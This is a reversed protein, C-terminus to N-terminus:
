KHNKIDIIRQKIEATKKLDKNKKAIKYGINLYNLAKDKQKLELSLDSLLIHNDILFHSNSGFFNKQIEISKLAYSLSEELGHQKLKLRSLNHYTTAIFPHSVKIYNDDIFIAKDCYLEANNYDQKNWYLASIHNYSAIINPHTLGLTQKHIEVANLYFDLAKNIENKRGHLAGINNYLISILPHKKGLIAEAIKQSKLYYDLSNDYDKLEKYILGINNYSEATDLHNTGLVKEKIELSKFHFDLAKKFNALERYASGINNYTYSVEIHKGTLKNKQISLADNFYKLSLNAKGLFKNSLGLHNYSRAFELDGPEILKKKITLAKKHFKVSEAYNGKSRHSQGILDLILAIDVNSKSYLTTHIQHCKNYFKLSKDYKGKKWYIEGIHQYIDAIGKSNNENIKLSLSLAKTFHGLSLDLKYNDKEFLGSKYYYESAYRLKEAKEFHYAILYYYNKDQNHLKIISKASLQHITKLRERLQMDYVTDRLLTHRFFYKSKSLSFWIREEEGRLLLFSYDKEPMNKLKFDKIVEFLITNEFERGLVSAIQVTDKLEAPLRDIQASLLTNIDKPIFATKKKLNLQNKKLELFESNQLYSCYQQIYYPNNETRTSLFSFLEKGPKHGMNNEILKLSLSDPFENLTIESIKVNKDSPIKPKYNKKLVRSTVFIVIPYNEIGRTLSRFVEHSEMDLWHIDEFILVLPKLVTQSKFFEKIALYVAKQKNKLSLKEFISNEWRLGVLSGIISKIRTLEEVADKKINLSAPANNISSVLNEYVRQFNNLKSKFTQNGSLNFYKFFFATFPNLSSKVVNDTQLTHIVANQQISKSFEFLLHSKGIGAEGYIYVVGAFKGNFIPKTIKHLKALEQKRGLFKNEFINESFEKRNLLEYIELSESFGKFKFKKLPRSNFNNRIKESIETTIFIQNWKAKEMMRCSLNVVSGLVGYVARLKSGKIGCFVSGYTIGAKFDCKIEEKLAIIFNLARNLNNEYATPIGFIVLCTNGKDGFDFNEIYGGYFNSNDQIYRIANNYIDSTKRFSIFVSVIDKFEGKLTYNIIKEPLFANINDFERQDAAPKLKQATKLITLQFYNKEVRQTDIENKLKLYLSKDAIITGPDARREALCSTKLSRGWFYYINQKEDGQINWNVFGYSMGIKVSIKFKGAKTKQSSQQKFIKIIHNAAHVARLMDPKDRNVPFLATFGDGSFTSIFGDRQYIGDIVPEFISNLISNLIEAGEKGYEMLKETMPTFGSIDMFMVVAKFKGSYIKQSHKELIFKPILNNM